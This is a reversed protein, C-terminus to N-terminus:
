LFYFNSYIHYFLYTADKESSIDEPEQFPVLPDSIKEAKGM